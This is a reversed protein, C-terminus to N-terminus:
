VYRQFINERTMNSTIENAKRLFGVPSWQPWPFSACCFIHLRGAPATQTYRQRAVSVNGMCFIHTAYRFYSQRLFYQSCLGSKAIDFERASVICGTTLSRTPCSFSRHKIGPLPLLNGKGESCGSRSRSASMRWLNTMPAREGPFLRYLRSASSM